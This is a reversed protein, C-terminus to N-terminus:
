YERQSLIKNDSFTTFELRTVNNGSYLCQSFNCTVPETATTFLCVDSSCITKYLTQSTPGLSLSASVPDEQYIHHMLFNSRIQCNLSITLFVIVEDEGNKILGEILM